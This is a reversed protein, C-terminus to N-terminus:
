PLTASDPESPSSRAAPAAEVGFPPPSVASARRVMRLVSEIAGITGLGFFILLKLVSAANADHSDALWARSVSIQSFTWLFPEPSADTVQACASSTASQQPQISPM